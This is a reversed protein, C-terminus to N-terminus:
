RFRESNLEIELQMELEDFIRSNGYRDRVARVARLLDHLATMMLGSAEFYTPLAAEDPLEIDDHPTRENLTPATLEEQAEPCQPTNSKTRRSAMQRGIFFICFFLILFLIISLPIIAFIWV